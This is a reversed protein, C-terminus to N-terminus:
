LSLPRDPWAINLTLLCTAAGLFIFLGSLADFAGGPPHIRPSAHKSGWWSL